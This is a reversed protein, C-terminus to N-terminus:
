LKCELARAITEPEANEALVAAEIVGGGLWALMTRRWGADPLVLEPGNGCDRVGGTIFNQGIKHNSYGPDSAIEMLDGDRMTWIRLIGGIHPTEVYAIDNQGDGDFDAIGAPALWRYARGIHPTAAIKRIRGRHIGRIKLPEAEPVYSYVALSAGTDAQTEVVVVDNLGDGDVDVIRPALDEFVRDDPLYIYDYCPLSLRGDRDRALIILGGGEVTDGLVGHRYRDTANILEAFTVGYGDSKADSGEWGPPYSCAQADFAIAALIIALLYRL